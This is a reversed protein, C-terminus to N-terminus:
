GAQREKKNIKHKNSDSGELTAIATGSNSIYVLNAKFELLGV